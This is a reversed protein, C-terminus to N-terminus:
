HTTVLRSTVFNTLSGHKTVFPSFTNVQTPHLWPMPVLYVGLTGDNMHVAVVCVMPVFCLLRGRECWLCSFVRSLIWMSKFILDAQKILKIDTGDCLAIKQDEKIMPPINFMLQIRHVPNREWAETSRSDRSASAPIISIVERPGSRAVVLQPSIVPMQAIQSRRGLVQM